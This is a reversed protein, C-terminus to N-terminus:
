RNKWAVFVSFCFGLAVMALIILAEHYRSRILEHNAYTRASEMALFLIRNLTFLGAVTCILATAMGLWFKSRRSIKERLVARGEEEAPHTASPIASNQFV